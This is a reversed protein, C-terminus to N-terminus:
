WGDDSGSCEQDGEDDSEDGEGDGGELVETVGDGTHVVIRADETDKALRRMERRLCVTSSLCVSLCREESVGGGVSRWFGSCVCWILLRSLVATVRSFM